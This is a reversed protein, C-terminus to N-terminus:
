TESKKRFIEALLALRWRETFAINRLKGAIILIVGAIKYLNRWERKCYAICGIVFAIIAIVFPVIILAQVVSMYETLSLEILIIQM